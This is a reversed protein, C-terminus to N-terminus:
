INFIFDKYYFVQLTLVSRGTAAVTVELLFDSFKFNIENQINIIKKFKLSKLCPMKVMIMVLAASITITMMRLMM